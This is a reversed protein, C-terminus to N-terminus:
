FDNGMNYLYCNAEEKPAAVAFSDESAQCDPLGTTAENLDKDYKVLVIGRKGVCECRYRNQKECSFLALVAVLTLIYKM